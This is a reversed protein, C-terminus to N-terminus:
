ACSGCSSCGTHETVSFVGCHSVRADRPFSHGGSAAVLSLRREAASGLVALLFFGLSLLTLSLSLLWLFFYVQGVIQVLAARERSVGLGM